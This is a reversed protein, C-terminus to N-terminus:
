AKKIRKRAKKPIQHDNLLLDKFNNVIIPLITPPSALLDIDTGTEKQVFSSNIVIVTGENKNIIEILDQVPSSNVPAGIVIFLDAEEAKSELEEFFRIPEGYEVIDPYLIGSCQNKMHTKCLFLEHKEPTKKYRQLIKLYDFSTRCESCVATFLQGHIHNITTDKSVAEHFGDLNSTYLISHQNLIQHIQQLTEFALHGTNPQGNLIPLIKGFFYSERFQKGYITRLSTFYNRDHILKKTFSSLPPHATFNISSTSIGPGTFYLINKANAMVQIIKEINESSEAKPSYDGHKQIENIYTEVRIRDKKSTKPISPESFVKKREVDHNENM